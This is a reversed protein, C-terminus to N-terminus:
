NTAGSSAPFMPKSVDITELAQLFQMINNQVSRNISERVCRLSNLSEKISAAGTTTINQTFILDGTKRDTIEYRAETTTTKSPFGTHNIDLKLIKVSLNVKRTSDDQFITMNNIAELLATQWQQPLMQAALTDSSNRDGVSMYKFDFPGTQEDSRAITVTMSKMEADLKKQSVGVNPVSYNLPPLNMCGTLFLSAIAASVMLRFKM